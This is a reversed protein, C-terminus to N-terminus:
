DDAAVVQKLAARLARVTELYRTPDDLQPELRAYAAIVAPYGREMLRNGEASLVLYYSRRDDPNPKKLLMGRGVSRRVYDRITTAPLGTEAALRGPTIPQLQAIWGLFSFDQPPVGVKELERVVLVNVLQGATYAEQMLAARRALRPDIKPRSM